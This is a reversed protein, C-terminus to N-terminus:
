EKAKKVPEPDHSGPGTGPEGPEWDAPPKPRDGGTPLGNDDIRTPGSEIGLSEDTRYPDGPATPDVPPEDKVFRVSVKSGEGAPVISIFEVEGDFDDGLDSPLFADPPKQSFGEFVTARPDDAVGTWGPPGALNQLAFAKIEAIRREVQEDTATPPLGLQARIDV